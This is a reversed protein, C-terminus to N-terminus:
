AARRRSERNLAVDLQAKSYRRGFPKVGWQRRWRKFASPSPRKVYERAEATTMVEATAIPQRAAERWLEVARRAVAEIDEIDLKM